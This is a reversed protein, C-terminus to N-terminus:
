GELALRVFAEVGTPIADDVFDFRPHHLQALAPQGQPQLGLLFFCAPVKQGYYSFDEGGMSPSAVPLVREDGFTRRAVREFIETAQPDNHTVPYGDHYDVVAECGYAAAVSRAVEHLRDIVRRRTEERLTRVTGSVLAREPIINHTTGAHFQTVSIVVSDFPDTGRSVITQLAQVIASGAVIPDRTAHPQAAHGGLGTIAIQFMDAAALIPGPRSGVTGLPMQPWGHLGYIRTVPTGLATGDLCGDEVMRRGGAGGEEAPQFLFTVSRPLPSEKALRALVTAAGLLMATHGDHGCAHMRGAHTSSWPLATEEEIPLADIDARLAITEQTSGAIHALTGTGGALGPRFSVGIETLKQRIIEATRHEAYGLEPHAHLDRRLATLSSLDATTLMPSIGFTM